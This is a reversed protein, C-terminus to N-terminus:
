AGMSYSGDGNSVARPHTYLDTAADFGILGARLALDFLWDDTGVQWALIAGGADVLNALVQALGDVVNQASEKAVYASELDEEIHLADGMDEHYMGLMAPEGAAPMDCGGNETILFYFSKYEARLAMCGGGTHWEEWNLM